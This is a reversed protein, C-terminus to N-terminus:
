GFPSVDGLGQLRQLRPARYGGSPGLGVGPAFTSWFPVWRAPFRTSPLAPLPWPIEPSGLRRGAGAARSARTPTWGPRCAWPFPGSLMSIGSPFATPSQFALRPSIPRSYRMLASRATAVLRELGTFRGVMVGALRRLAGILRLHALMRDVRYLEEGADELFLIAGALEPFYPTGILCQLLRSIGM